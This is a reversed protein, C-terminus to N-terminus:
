IKSGDREHVLRIQGAGAQRAEDMVQVFYGYPVNKDGRIHVVREEQSRLIRSLDGQLTELTSEKQNVYLMKDADMSIVIKEPKALDHSVSKPLNIELAPMSFTSSLMFFVLLLFIIDILPALDMGMKSKRSRIFEM